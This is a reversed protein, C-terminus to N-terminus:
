TQGSGGCTECTKSGGGPKGEPNCDPCGPVVDADAVLAESVANCVTCSSQGPSVMGALHTRRGEGCLARQGPPALHTHGPRTMLLDLVPGSM